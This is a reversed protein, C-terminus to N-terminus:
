LSLLSAGNNFSGGQSLWVLLQPAPKYWIKLVTFLNTLDNASRPLALPQEVFVASMRTRKFGQITLALSRIKKCHKVQPFSMGFQSHNQYGMIPEFYITPSLLNAFIPQNPCNHEIVFVIKMINMEKLNQNNLQLLTLYIIRIYKTM